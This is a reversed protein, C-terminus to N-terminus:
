HNKEMEDVPPIKKCENRMEECHNITGVDDFLSGPMM